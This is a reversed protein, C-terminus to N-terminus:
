TRIADHGLWKKGVDVAYLERMITYREKPMGPAIDQNLDLIPEVGMGLM